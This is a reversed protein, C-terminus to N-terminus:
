PLATTKFLTGVEVAGLARDYQRLDDILGTFYRHDLPNGGVYVRPNGTVPGSSARCTGNQVGDLYLFVSGGDERTVAVHHWTGDVLNSSGATTQDYSIYDLRNNMVSLTFDDIAGVKNAWLLANGHLADGSQNSPTDTWVWFTYTFSASTLNAVAFGPSKGDCRLVQGRSADTVFSAAGQLTGDNTGVADNTDGDLPWQGVLGKATSGAAGVQAGAGAGGGSSAAGTGGSGANANGAVSVGGTGSVPPTGGAETLADAKPFLSLTVENCAFLSGIGLILASLWGRRSV